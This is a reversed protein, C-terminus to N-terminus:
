IDEKGFLLCVIVVITVFVIIGLTIYTAKTIENLLTM